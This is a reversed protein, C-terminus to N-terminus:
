LEYQRPLFEGRNEKPIWLPHAALSSYIVEFANQIENRQLLQWYDYKVKAIPGDKVGYQKLETQERNWGIREQSAIIDRILRFMFVIAGDFSHCCYALSPAQVVFQSQTEFLKRCAGVDRIGITEEDVYKFGTDRAIMRACITTGSRQPGTVMIRDFKKLYEFM